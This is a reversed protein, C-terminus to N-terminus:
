DTILADHAAHIVMFIADTGSTGTAKLCAQWKAYTDPDLSFEIKIQNDELTPDGVDNFLKELDEPSGWIKNLDAIDDESFGMSEIETLDFNELTQLLEQNNFHSLDNTRNDAIAYAVEDQSTWNPPTRVIQVETWGLKKAAILQGNGALVVNENNVVIPKRQGFRKLSAEISNLNTENHIRLNSPDLTVADIKVTELRLNNM